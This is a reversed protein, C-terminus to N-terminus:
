EKIRLKIIIALFCCSIPGSLFRAFAKKKYQITRLEEKLRIAEQWKGDRILIKLRIYDGRDLLANEDWNCDEPFYKKQLRRNKVFWNNYQLQKELSNRKSSVGVESRYVAMPKEIKAFFSHKALITQLFLDGGRYGGYPDLISRRYCMSVTRTVPGHKADEFVDQYLRWDGEIIPVTSLGSVEDVLKGNPSLLQTETGVFGYDPHNELFSVQEQLKSSDTWYDDGECFAIYTSNLWENLLERKRKTKYLNKKLFVALFWCNRNVKHNVLSWFADESEWHRSGSEESQNFRADIYSKIVQPEGDTSADDVIVALFPFETKQMSFGNLADEIFRAQNYTYCRICVKYFM